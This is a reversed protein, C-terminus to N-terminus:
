RKRAPPTFGVGVRLGASLLSLDTGPDVFNAELDVRVTKLVDGGTRVAVGVGALAGYTFGRTTFSQYQQIVEGDDGTNTSEERLRLAAVPGAYVRPRVTRGPFWYMATPAFTLYDTHITGPVFPFQSLRSVERDAAAYGLDVGVGVRDSLLVEASLSVAPTVSYSVDDPDEFYTYSPGLRFVAGQQASAASAVALLTITLTLRLPASHM